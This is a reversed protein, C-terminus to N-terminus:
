EKPRAVMDINNSSCPKNAGVIHRSSFVKKHAYNLAGFVILYYIAIFGPPPSLISVCSWPYSSLHIIVALMLNAIIKGVFAFPYAFVPSFVGVALAILCVAILAAVMLATLANAFVAVLSFYNFYYATIPWTGTIAVVSLVVAMVIYESAIFIWRVPSLIVNSPFTSLAFVRRIHPNVLPMALIIAIVAAFSLQFGIDYLALPNVALIALAALLVINPLDAYRWVLYAALFASVMVAARVISPSAGVMITFVWLMGILLLYRVSRPVTLKCLLFGFVGTIIGCNFGSAALLHMTGTKMFAVQLESPLLAYNGLLVSLLLRAQVPPFLDLTVRELASRLRTAIWTLNKSSPKIITLENAVGVLTSYIRKRALYAGYDLLWPNGSRRPICLRGHIRVSEGYSPLRQDSDNLILTVMARGSVKFRGSYTEVVRCNLIFRVRDGFLEPDSAVKGSLWVIKGKAYHSVDNPPIKHYVLTRLLGVGFVAIFIALTFQHINRIFLLFILALAVLCLVAAIFFSTEISSACLIGAVYAVTFPFLPRRTFDM